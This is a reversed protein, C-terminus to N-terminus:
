DKVLSWYILVSRRWFLKFVDWSLMTSRWSDHWSWCLSWNNDHERIKIQLSWFLFGTNFFMLPSFPKCTSIYSGICFKCCFLSVLSLQIFPRKNQEWNPLWNMASRLSSRSRKTRHSVSLSFPDSILTFALRGSHLCLGARIYFDKFSYMFFHVYFFNM